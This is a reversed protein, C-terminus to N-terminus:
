SSRDRDADLALAMILREVERDRAFVNRALAHGLREKDFGAYAVDLDFAEALRGAFLDALGQSAQVFVFQLAQNEVQPAVAAAQEALGNGNRVLKQVSALNNNRM